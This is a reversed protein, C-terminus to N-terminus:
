PGDGGGNGGNDGADADPLRRSVQEERSVGIKQMDQNCCVLIGGGVKTVTVENACANCRYLEGVEKVTM